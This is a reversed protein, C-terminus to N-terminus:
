YLYLRSPFNYFFTLWSIQINGSSLVLSDDEKSKMVSSERVDEIKVPIFLPEKEQKTGIRQHLEDMKKFKEFAYNSLQHKRIFEGRSLSSKQYDKYIKEWKLNTNAM